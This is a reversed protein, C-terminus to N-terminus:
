QRGHHWAPDGVRLCGEEGIRGREDACGEDIKRQKEKRDPHYYQEQRWLGKQEAHAAGTLLM